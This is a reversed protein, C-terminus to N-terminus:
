MQIDPVEEEQYNPATPLNNMGLDQSKQRVGIICLFLSLSSFNCPGEGSCPPFESELSQLVLDTMKRPPHQPLLRSYCNRLVHPSQLMPRFGLQVAFAKDLAQDVIAIRRGDLPELSASLRNAVYALLKFM